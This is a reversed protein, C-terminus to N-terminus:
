AVGRMAADARAQVIMARNWDSEARMLAIRHPETRDNDYRLEAQVLSDWLQSRTPATIM